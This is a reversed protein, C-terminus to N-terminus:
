DADSGELHRLFGRLDWVKRIPLAKEAESEDAQPRIGDGDWLWSYALQGKKDQIPTRFTPFARSAPPVPVNAVVSIRGDSAGLAGELALIAIEGGDGGSGLLSEFDAPRAAHAGPLVRVVEPYAAHRHTVQAYRLGGAIRFEIIDGVQAGSM